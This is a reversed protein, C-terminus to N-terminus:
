IDDSKVTCILFCVTDYFLNNNLVSEKKIPLAARVLCFLSTLSPPSHYSRLRNQRIERTNRLSRCKFQLNSTSAPHLGVESQQHPNHGRGSWTLGSLIYFTCLM